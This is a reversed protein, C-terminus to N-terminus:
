IFYDLSELYFWNINHVLKSILSTNQAFELHFLLSTFRFLTNYDIIIQFSKGTKKIDFPFFPFSLLITSLSLSLTHTLCLM